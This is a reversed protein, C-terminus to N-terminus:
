DDLTLRGFPRARLEVWVGEQMYVDQRALEIAAAESDARVILLSGSMDSFGGVEIVTGEAKLRALRALHQPRVPARLESADPGYTAQIVWVDELHHAPTADPETM